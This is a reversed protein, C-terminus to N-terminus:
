RKGRFERAKEHLTPADDNKSIRRAMQLLAAQDEPELGRLLELWEREEHTLSEEEEDYADSPDSHYPAQRDRFYDELGKPLKLDWLQGIKLNNEAIYEAMALQVYVLWTPFRKAKGTELKSILQTSLMIDDNHERAKERAREVLDGRSWGLRTRLERLWQADHAIITALQESM